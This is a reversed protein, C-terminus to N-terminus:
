GEAHEKIYDRNMNNKYKEKYIKSFEEKNVKFRNLVDSYYMLVDCMEEVFHERVKPDNMIQDEGKKKVISIVEGIEEIMYLIFTKGHNPEMPAWKEKNNEWLSKSMKLMEEISLNEKM